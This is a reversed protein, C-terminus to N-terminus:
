YGGTTAPDADESDTEIEFIEPIVIPARPDIWAPLAFAIQIEEDPISVLLLNHPPTSPDGDNWFPLIFRGGRRLEDMTLVGSGKFIGDDNSCAFAGNVVIEISKERAAKVAQEQDILSTENPAVQAFAHEHFTQDVVVALITQPDSWECNCENWEIGELQVTVGPFEIAEMWAVVRDRMPMAIGRSRAVDLYRSGIPSLESYASAALDQLQGYIMRDEALAVTEWLAATDILFNPWLIAISPSDFCLRFEDAFETWNGSANAELASLALQEVVRSQFRESIAFVKQKQLDSEPQATLFLEAAAAISGLDLLRQFDSVVQTCLEERSLADEVLRTEEAAVQVRMEIRGVLDQFAVLVSPLDSEPIEGDIVEDSFQVLEDATEIDALRASRDAIWELATDRASLIAVYSDALNAGEAALQRARDFRSDSPIAMNSLQDSAQQMSQTETSEMDAAQIEGVGAVLSGELKDRNALLEAIAQSEEAIQQSLQPLQPPARDIPLPLALAEVETSLAALTASSQIKERLLELRNVAEAQSSTLQALDTQLREALSELLEDTFGGSSPHPPDSEELADVVAQLGAITRVEVGIAGDVASTREAFWKRNALRNDAEVCLDWAQSQADRVNELSIQRIAVRDWWPAIVIEKIRAALQSSETSEGSDEPNGKSEEARDRAAMMDAKLTALAERDVSYAWGLWGLTAIVLAGIAMVILRTQKRRTPPNAPVAKTTSNVQSHDTHAVTPGSDFEASPESEDPFEQFDAEDILGEFPDPENTQDPNKPDSM